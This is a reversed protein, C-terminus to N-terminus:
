ALEIQDLLRVARESRHGYLQRSLKEIQLRQHAIVAADDSTKAKAVALEAEVQATRAREAVLAARLADIDEPLDKRATAM